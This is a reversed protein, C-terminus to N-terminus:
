FSVSITHRDSGACLTILSKDGILSNMYNEVLDKKESESIPEMTNTAKRSFIEAINNTFQVPFVISSRQHPNLSSIAEIKQFDAAVRSCYSQIIDDEVFVNDHMFKYLKDGDVSISHSIFLAEEKLKYAASFENQTDLNGKVFVLNRVFFENEVFLLGNDLKTKVKGDTNMVIYRGCNHVGYRNIFRILTTTVKKVKVFTAALLQFIVKESGITVPFSLPIRRQSLDNTNLQVQVSFLIKENFHAAPLTQVNIAIAEQVCDMQIPAPQSSTSSRRSESLQDNISISGIELVFDQISSLLQENTSAVTAEAAPRAGSFDAAILKQVIDKMRDFQPLKQQRPWSYLIFAQSLCIAMVNDRNSLDNMGKPMWIFLKSLEIAPPLISERIHKDNEELNNVLAVAVVQSISTTGSGSQSHSIKPANVESEKSLLVVEQSKNLLTTWLSKGNEFNHLKQQLQNVVATSFKLLEDLPPNYDSISKIIQASTGAAADVVANTASTAAVESLDAGTTAAMTTVLAALTAGADAVANASTAAVVSLDAETTAAVTVLAAPTAGADGVANASTTAVVSLDAETTAAVTVLAALTTGADVTERRTRKNKNPNLETEVTETEVTEAESINRKKNRTTNSKSISIATTSFRETQKRVRKTPADAEEQEEEDVNGRAKNYDKLVHRFSERAPNSLSLKDIDENNTLDIVDNKTVIDYLSAANTKLGKRPHNLSLRLQENALMKTDLTPLCRVSDLLSNTYSEISQGSSNLLIQYDANKDLKGQQNDRLFELVRNGISFVGDSRRATYDKVFKARKEKKAETEANGKSKPLKPGFNDTAKQDVHSTLEEEIIKLATQLPEHKLISDIAFKLYSIFSTSENLDERDFGSRLESRFTAVAETSLNASSSSSSIEDAMLNKATLWWVWFTSV